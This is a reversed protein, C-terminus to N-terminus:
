YENAIIEKVGKVFKREAEIVNKSLFENGNIKGVEKPIKNGKGTGVVLRHGKALLHTLRYEPDKCVM